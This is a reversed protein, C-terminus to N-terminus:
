IFKYHNEWTFFLSLALISTDSNESLYVISFYVISGLGVTRFVEDQKWSHVQKGSCLAPTKRM